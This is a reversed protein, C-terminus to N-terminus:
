KAPCPYSDALAFLLVARKEMQKEEPHKILYAVYTRIITEADNVSEPVCAGRKITGSGDMFGEIYGICYNGGPFDKPDAKHAEIMRIATQCTNFLYLASSAQKPMMTLALLSALM